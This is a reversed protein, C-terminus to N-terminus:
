ISFVSSRGDSSAVAVASRSPHMDVGMVADSIGERLKTLVAGGGRVDYVYAQKDESGTAVYRGCPSLVCQVKGYRNVHGLFQMVAGGGASVTGSGRTIARLDWLKISDQVSATLFFDVNSNGGSGNNPVMVTHVGKAPITTVIKQQWLDVVNGVASGGGGTVTIATYSSFCNPADFCAITADFAMSAKVKFTNYNLGPKIENTKVSQIKYSVLQLNKKDSICLIFKDRFYFQPQQILSLPQSAAATAAPKIVGKRQGVQKGFSLIPDTAMTNWLQATGDLSSSLFCDEMTDTGWYVHSVGSDHGFYAKTTGTHVKHVFAAKQVCGVAISSGITNFRVCTVPGPHSFSASPATDNGSAAGVPESKQWVSIKGAESSPTSRCSTSSSVISKRASSIKPLSFLKPCTPQQTYGSSKVTKRFTIPKNLGSSSAAKKTPTSKPIKVEGGWLTDVSQFGFGKRQGVGELGIHCNILEAHKLIGERITRSLPSIVSSSDDSFNELADLRTQVKINREPQQDGFVLDEIGRIDLKSLETMADKWLRDGWVGGGGGGGGAYRQVSQLDILDRVVKGLELTPSVHGQYLNAGDLVDVASDKKELILRRSGTEERDAVNEVDITTSYMRISTTVRERVLFDFGTRMLGNKICKAMSWLKTCGIVSLFGANNLTHTCLADLSTADLLCIGFQTAVLVITQTAATTNRKCNQHPMSFHALYTCTLSLTTVVVKAIDDTNPNPQQQKWKPKSSIVTTASSSDDSPISPTTQPFYVATKITKLFRIQVKPTTYFEHFHLNGDDTALLIIRRSIETLENSSASSPIITLATIPYASLIPSNYLCEKTNVNWVKFSRDESASILLQESKKEALHAQILNLCTVPGGHGELVLRTAPESDLHFVIVRSGIALALLSSDPSFALIAQSHTQEETPLHHWSEFGGQISGVLCVGPCAVGVLLSDSSTFLGLIHSIPLQQTQMAQGTDVSLVELLGRETVTVISSGDALVAYFRREKRAPSIRFRTKAPSIDINRIM